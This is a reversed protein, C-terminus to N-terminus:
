NTRRRESCRDIDRVPRRFLYLVRRHTISDFRFFLARSMPDHEVQRGKRFGIPNLRESERLFTNPKMLSPLLSDNNSESFFDVYQFLLLCNFNNKENVKNEQVILLLDWNCVTHNDSRPHILRHLHISEGTCSARRREFWIFDINVSARGCHLTDPRTSEGDLPSSSSSLSLSLSLVLRSRSFISTQVSSADVVSLPSLLLLLLLWPLDIDRSACIWVFSCNMGSQKKGRERERETRLEIKDINTIRM